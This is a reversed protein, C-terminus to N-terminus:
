PIGAGADPRPPSSSQVSKLCGDVTALLADARFPKQLSAVAGLKTAM